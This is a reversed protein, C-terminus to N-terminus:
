GCLFFVNEVIIMTGLTTTQDEDENVATTVQRGNQASWLNPLFDRGSQDVIQYRGVKLRDCLFLLLNEEQENEVIIMTGLPTTQNEDENM